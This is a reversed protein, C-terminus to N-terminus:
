PLRPATATASRSAASRTARRAAPRDGSLGLHLDVGPTAAAAERVMPDLVERRLNVGLGAEDPPAEIWGWETWASDALAHGGADVIPELLDLRELTPVASAQIFHSCIESSPRRIPSNRSWPSGCARRPGLLIATACGALSGGVIVADYEPSSTGSSSGTDNM